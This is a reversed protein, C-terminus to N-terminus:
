QILAWTMCRCPFGLNMMIGFGCISRKYKIDDWVFVPEMRENSLLQM